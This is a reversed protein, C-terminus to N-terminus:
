IKFIKGNAFFRKGNFILSFQLYLSFLFSLIPYGTSVFMSNKVLRVNQLSSFTKFFKIKGAFERKIQYGIISDMWACIRETEYKRRVEARSDRLIIEFPTKSSAASDLIIPEMGSGNKSNRGGILQLKRNVVGRCRLHPIACPLSNGLKAWAYQDFDSVVGKIALLGLSLHEYRERSFKSIIERSFKLIFLFSFFLLNSFCIHFNGWLKIFIYYNYTRTKM